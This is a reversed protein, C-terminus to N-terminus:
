VASGNTYASDPPTGPLLRHRKIKWALNQEDFDLPIATEAVTRRSIVDTQRLRFRNLVTAEIAAFALAPIIVGDADVSNGVGPGVRNRQVVALGCVLNLSVVVSSRERVAFPTRGYGGISGCHASSIMRGVTKIRERNNQRTRQRFLSYMGALPPTIM